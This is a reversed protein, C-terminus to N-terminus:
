YEDFYAKHFKGESVRIRHVSERYGKVITLSGDTYVYNLDLKIGFVYQNMLTFM